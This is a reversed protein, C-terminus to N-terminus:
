ILGKGIERVQSSIFIKQINIVIILTKFILWDSSGGLSLRCKRTDCQVTDHFWLIIWTPLSRLLDDVIEKPVNEVDIPNKGSANILLMWARRGEIPMLFDVHLIYGNSIDWLSFFQAIRYFTLSFVRRWTTWKVKWCDTDQWGYDVVWQHSSQILAIVFVKKGNCKRSCQILLWFIFLDPVNRHNEEPVKVCSCVSHLVESDLSTYWGNVLCCPYSM